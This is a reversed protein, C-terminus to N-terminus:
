KAALWADYQKQMEAIIKDSGAKKIKEIAEPLYKETDISGVALAPIYQNWANKVTAIETLVPQPDFAFGLSPAQIASKNFEEYKAWKDKPEDKFLYQLFM